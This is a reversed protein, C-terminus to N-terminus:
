KLLTIKGSILREGAHLTYLYVGSAAETSSNTTGNWRVFYNGSPLQENVLEKVLEGQVNYINLRVRANTLDAPITFRFTTSANFPNPFNSVMLYNQPVSVSKNERVETLLNVGSSKENGNQDALYLNVFSPRFSPATSYAEAWEEDSFRHFDKTIHEHYSLVPGIFAMRNGNTNDALFVGLNIKGTGAHLIWGVPNALSDTPVTHVDAVIYDASGIKNDWTNKYFLRSYWGNIQDGCGSGEAIMRTLFHKQAETLEEKNLEKISIQKLTDCIAELNNFYTKIHWANDESAIGSFISEATQAYIQVANYFEPVPEVYSYPFSCLIAGTYLQKAYLINDHRLQAWSSLQTNIKEQWFSATQMFEPLGSRDYPPSLKRISNLWANYLNSEWFEPPYSDILYRLAALNGSYHYQDLEPKLLQAAANNGLAFLIDLTSPLMRKVKYNNYSIRDFVVQSAVYSDVIFRQGFLLLSSAPVISDPDNFGTYIIQSLIKQDAYPQLKLTNQFDATKISDLLDAASTIGTQERLTKLNVLTVNDAPGTFSNLYGDIESWLSLAGSEEAAELLLIGDIIQRQLDKFTPAPFQARPATLYFETRGLWIMARFYSQLELYNYDTYHGRVKFQSFDITRETEAFLPYDAPQLKEILSFIESVSQENDSYYPTKSNDLLKGAVSLYLDLDKLMIMMEPDSYKKELVPMQGHLRSLFQELKPILLSVEFDKLIVDYSIHITHLIADTSVFVPMDKKWIDLFAEGFSSYSLRETVMFGSNRILAKEGATFSYKLDLSDFYLANDPNFSRAGNFIGAPHKEMLQQPSINHNERLFLKYQDTNFEQCYTALPLILLFFFSYYIIGKM